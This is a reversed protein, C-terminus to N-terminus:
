PGSFLHSRLRRRASCRGRRDQLRTSHAAPPERYRQLRRRCRELVRATRPAKAALRDLLRPLSRSALWDSKLHNDVSEDNSCRAPRLSEECALASSEFAPPAPFFSPPPASSYLRLPAQLKKARRQAEAGGSRRKM